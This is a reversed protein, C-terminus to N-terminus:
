QIELLNQSNVYVGQVSKNKLQFTEDYYLLIVPVEHNIATNAASYYESRKVPDATRVAREYLADLENNKLRTYNPPAPNKGYFVSIYNEPDPYDAIWSARFLMSEGKRMRDRLISSELLNVEGKVGIKEWSKIVYLCKELYEKNTELVLKEGQYDSKDLYYRASDLDFSFGAVHDYDPLGRPVFGHVAPYGIGGNLTAVLQKKDIAFNLAKRFLANSLPHASKTALELNIGLYETNLFPQQTMEIISQFREQLEGEEDLLLAQYSVDYGLMFDISGSLLELLATKRDAMCEVRLGDLPTTSKNWKQNSRNKSLFLVEGEVWKQIQFPGSGVPHSRFKQGYHEVAEKSVIACYEMTLLSLLPGYPEQLRLVFTSDDVARFPQISDVKGKFVWSGPSFLKPDILRKFSFVVDEAKLSPPGNEWLTDEHFLVGTRLHFTYELGSSDVEWSKCVDPVVQMSSDMKVLKSFLHHVVGINAMSRAFAPDLSTIVNPQHYVLINKRSEQSSCSLLLVLYSLSILRM